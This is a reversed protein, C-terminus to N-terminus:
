RGNQADDGYAAGESIGNLNTGTLEFSGDANAEINSIGPQGGPLAPVM